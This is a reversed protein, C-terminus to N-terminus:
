LAQRVRRALEPKIVKGVANRPFDDFFLVRKPVKYAAIREKCFSRIADEGLVVHARPIVAAVAIEGWTEDPVGVVAVDAVGEIDRLVEEIELASLKYGGSKLIDVSTRGLIKVYGNASQTALDGSKFWGDVFVERTAAELKDYALFVSPGRIWIEGAEDVGAASGDDKVIRIQMGPLPLGVSGPVREGLLPNSLGVGIETMGFRELPYNGTLRRFREGVGVPLAASGSTVLRLHAANKQWQTRTEADAADLADLLKKHMTPVGMLVSADRMEEWVRAADFRTLMRTKGGALLSVFLSIGLGHLHHLPLSHLLCDEVSWAWADAILQALCGLNGHSILAGKPKGTTGSTYLILAPDRNRSSWDRVAPSARLSEVSIVPRGLASGSAAESFDESVLLASAESTEVFWAREGDPHLHSLPVVISGALAIGFFGELWRSDQTAFLAIRKGSLGLETLGQAVSRARAALEVFSVQESDTVLAIADRRAAVIEDFRYLLQSQQSGPAADNM